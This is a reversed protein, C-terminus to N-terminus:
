TDTAAASTFDDTSFLGLQQHASTIPRAISPTMGEHLCPTVEQGHDSGVDAVAAFPGGLVTKAEVALPSLWDRDTLITRSM